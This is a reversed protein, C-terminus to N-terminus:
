QPLTFGNRALIDRAVPSQLYHYFKTAIPGANSTLAMRQRLPEHWDAPILASSGKQGINGALSLSYAIIGGSAAGSVAFQAAQTVNEGYVLRSSLSDWLGLHVLVEKARRGYPAHEPNAIALKVLRGDDAAAALDKLSGDAKLASGHPVFLALRGQAYVVGEGQLRGDQALELIFAEDASLFLEFPAGSKIQRALNGSSGFTLRVREKSDEAFRDSIETLAFQLDSAAAIIPGAPEGRAGGALGVAAVLLSMMANMLLLSRPM